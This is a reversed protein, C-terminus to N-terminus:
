SNRLPSKNCLVGSNLLHVDVCLSKDCFYFKFYKTM